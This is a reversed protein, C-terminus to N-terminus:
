TTKASELNTLWRQTIDAIQQKWQYHFFSHNAHEIVHCEVPAGVTKCSGVYHRRSENLMPDSGAYIVLVPCVTVHNTVPSKSYRDKVRWANALTRWVGGFSVDGKILRRLYNPDKLKRLYEAGYTATNRLAVQTSSLPPSLLIMGALPLKDGAAAEFALRSGRSVGFVIVEDLSATAHFHRIANVTDLVESATGNEDASGGSDGCGSLDFRFTPYGQSNFRRAMEVFMRHPGLRNGGGAHVFLVGVNRSAAPAEYVFALKNQGSVFREIRSM